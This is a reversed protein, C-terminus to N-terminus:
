SQERSASVSSWNYPNEPDNPSYHAARESDSLEPPSSPLTASASSSIAQSSSRDHGLDLDDADIKCIETSIDKDKEANTASMHM